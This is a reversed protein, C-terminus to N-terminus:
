NIKIDVGLSQIVDIYKQKHEEKNKLIDDTLENYPIVEYEFANTTSNKTKTYTLDARLNVLKIPQDKEKIVDVGVMLGTLQDVTLQGSIFNGLSYIVLTNDIYTIPEIVHPHHGIVIDVGLSALYNAIKEQEENQKLSYETGFHMSVLLLDVKDRLLEIDKKVQTEDYVNLYYEKGEPRTLGNTVTTYALLAYSIGNKSKIIPNNRSELSEYSGATLVDKDKWYNLSSIIGAEGRDLTHNNALSVLNFGMDLFADGVEKPSNFRPYTSLGIETGGLISEQNYFKLDYGETLPKVKAFIKKFDYSNDAQKANNYVANHILADGVMLLSLKKPSEKKIEEEKIASNSTTIDEKDLLKTLLLFLCLVLFISLVIYAVVVLFKKM